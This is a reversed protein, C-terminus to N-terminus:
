SSGIPLPWAWSFSASVSCWWAWLWSHTDALSGHGGVWGTQPLALSSTPCLLSPLLPRGQWSRTSFAAGRTTGSASTMTPPAIRRTKGPPAVPLQTTKPLANKTESTFMQLSFLEFRNNFLMKSDSPVARPNAHTKEMPSNERCYVWKKPPSNKGRAVERSTTNILFHAIEGFVYGLTMLSLYFVNKSSWDSGAM